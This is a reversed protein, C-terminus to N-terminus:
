AHSNYQTGKHTEDEQTLGMHSEHEQTPDMHSEHEQTTGMHSEHEQTPKMHSEHEQTPVMRTGDSAGLFHCGHTPGGTYMSCVWSCKFLGLTTPEIIPTGHSYAPLARKRAGM